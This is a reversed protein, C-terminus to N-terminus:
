PGLEELRKRIKEEEDALISPYLQGVLQGRLAQRERLAAKLEEPDDSELVKTIPDM